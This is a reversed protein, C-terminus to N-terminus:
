EAELAGLDLGAGTVKRPVMGNTRLLPQMEVPLTAYAPDPTIGDPVGTAADLAPSSPGPHFDDFGVFGADGTLLTGITQVGYNISSASQSAVLITGSALNAGRLDLKGANEVWTFNSEGTVAFVNNWADVQTARLSLDFMSMEYYGAGPTDRQVVTNNYFFLHARYPESPILETSSSDQEGLNDGGYHIPNAACKELECDNVIINGYAYDVGYDPQTTIGPDQDEAHVWDIARASAEVYNYRFIEGSSRSKYTSSDASHRTLGFFNGEVLPNASQMYVNHELYSGVVGNGYIRNSRLVIRECAQDLTSDKAMTFVGFGHDHIVNNQLLVDASPQIWVGASSEMFPVTAGLLNKFTANTRAGLLELNKIQIHSPKTGYPDDVGPRIVIGGYDELSYQSATDFIDAGGGPNCGSATHSGDFDFLPRHGETDTVGNVVIPAEATGQGRLCLKTKYPAARHYINVVDGAVLAGWPVTDPEEYERGPGVEYTAHSGTEPTTVPDSVSLKAGGAGGGGASGGAGGLGGTGGTGGGSSGGGSTGSPDSPCGTCALALLLPIPLCATRGPTSPYRMVRRDGM